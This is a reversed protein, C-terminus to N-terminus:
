IEKEKDFEDMDIRTGDSYCAYVKGSAKDFVAIPLDLARRKELELEVAKKARRVSEADTLNRERRVVDARSLQNNM